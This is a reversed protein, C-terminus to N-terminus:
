LPKIFEISLLWQLSSEAFDKFHLNATKSPTNQYHGFQLEYYEVADHSIQEEMFMMSEVYSSVKLVLM